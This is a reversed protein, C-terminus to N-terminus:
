RDLIGPAGSGGGGISTPAALVTVEVAPVTVTQGGATVRFPGLTYRGARAAGLEYHFNTEASSRGNIWSFNQSRGSGLMELGPPVGFAPESGVQGRVLIELTVNEGLAITSREVRAEAPPTAQGYAGRMAGSCLLGLAALLVAGAPHRASSARQGRM